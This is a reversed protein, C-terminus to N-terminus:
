ELRRPPTVPAASSPSAPASVIRVIEGERLVRVPLSSELKALIRDFDKLPYAGVVQLGAVEPACIVPRAHWNALEAALEDLRMRDALLIGRSWTERSPDAPGVAKLHERDFVAHEGAHLVHASGGAAELALEVAGEFVDVRSEISGTRVAFRTGLARLRAHLTDVVFPRAPAAGDPATEVLLDGRHLVLRRLSASYAIDLASRSGLWVRGGDELALALVQGPGTRYLARQLALEHRWERWPMRYALMGCGGAALLVGLAKFVNRRSRRRPAELASRAPKGSQALPGFRASIEEIRKWARAHDPHAALWDRWGRQESEGASADALNVFWTAAEELVPEPIGELADMGRSM